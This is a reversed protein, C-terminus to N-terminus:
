TRGPPEVCSGDGLLIHNSVLCYAATHESIVSVSVPYPSGVERWGGPRVTVLNLSISVTSVHCGTPCTHVLPMAKAIVEDAWETTRDHWARQTSAHIIEEDRHIVTLTALPAGDADVQWHIFANTLDDLRRRALNSYTEGDHQWLSIRITAIGNIM